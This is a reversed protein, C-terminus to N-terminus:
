TWSLKTRNLYLRVVAKDHSHVRTEAASKSWWRSIVWDEMDMNTFM